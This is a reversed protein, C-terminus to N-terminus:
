GMNVVIRIKLIEDIWINISIQMKSQSDAILIIDNANLLADLYIPTFNRINNLIKDTATIFLLQSSSGGQKVGQKLDAVESRDIHSNSMVMLKYTQRSSLM